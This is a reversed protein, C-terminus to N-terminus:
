INHDKVTKPVQIGQKLLNSVNPGECFLMDLVSLNPVFAKGFVQNYTPTVFLGSMGSDRKPHIRSRFDSYSGLDSPERYMKSFHHKKPIQVFDLCTTLLSCNLDVLYEYKKQYIEHFAEFYFEFFPAKGYASKIARLHHHIWKQTYDIKIDKIPHRNKPKLLPVSLVQISNSTKICCRNRYTQKEFHEHIDLYIEESFCYCQFYEIPPLYQLEIIIKGNHM